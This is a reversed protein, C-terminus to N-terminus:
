ETKIKLEVEVILWKEYNVRQEIIKLWWNEEDVQQDIMKWWWDNKMKLDISILKKDDVRQNIM